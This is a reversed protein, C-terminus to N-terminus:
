DHRLATIPDVRMARRAPVYCAVVAVSALMLSLVAFTSPDRPSVGYLLAGILRTMAVAGAVGAAVGCAALRVGQGLVLRLVDRPAAGLAIRIGIEHTRQSVFCAMVGYIGIASLVLATAAFLALLSMTFRREGLAAAVVEDMTRVGYVPENPDVAHVERRIANALNAPDGSARVVLTLSLNSVQLLSRYILPEPDLELRDTKVDRVVGVITMWNASTPQVPGAGSGSQVRRGPAIRKGVADERPFFRRAFTDNVVVVLPARDDDHDSLLRGAVLGIRLTEFYGPMALTSQAASTDAAAIARGEISFSLRARSGGLPLNAVGSASTVGPLAAVHTLVRRYFAVRAPHTFYPGTSPVNPQPLWLRATLVSQADFGLEARQLRWFSQVLLAAGVLLVLALAFEAVVFLARLRAAPSAVTASQTSERMVHSLDGHSGHIAPALGFVIGTTMSLAATFVLVAANVSVDHLRPLSAPSLRVLGDVGWVAVLLGLLGGAAALLVSETLLQRVLRARGAGLARRIAIERQRVSSRALLLNAVNACAILLVFGVAALLTLLPRRVAGVLDDRLPVLRLAWGSGAPYDAPFQQRLTAALADIRAQASAVTLGPKLRGLGGQLLYARRIPQASFPSALWGAPAWVDVDTETVRGPHRFSAPAVGVISYVDNDIRIRKGLVGPDGGFRRRWVADSIVAAEAIGPVADAPGFVRGIQATVGLLSFYNADVLATEIREPEDTETLNASVPWVGAIADFIGARERLDLLEAISLGADKVGQGNFDVTARVLQEPSRFPLPELLVANVVTFLATNAGIGLALTAVAVASFTKDRWATRAAYRLDQFLNPMTSPEHCHSIAMASPQQSHRAM